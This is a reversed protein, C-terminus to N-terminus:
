ATPNRLVKRVGPLYNPGVQVTEGDTMVLRYVGTESRVLREVFALNVFASRHVRPMTAPLREAMELMTSRLLHSLAATHVIVYDRAAEIWKIDSMAVDHGGRADPVHLMRHACLPEAVATELATIEAIRRQARFVAQQLRHPRVPKLVYDTAEVAFAETAYRAFASVVIVQIRREVALISAVEIGNFAPMEIDLVILDPLLRRAEILAAAGDSATGVLEVNPMEGVIAVLRRLALPEDDVLLVRIM